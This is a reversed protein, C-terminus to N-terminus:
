CKYKNRLDEWSIKTADSKGDSMVGRGKTKSNEQIREVIKINLQKRKCYFVLIIICIIIITLTFSGIGYYLKREFKLELIEKMNEEQNFAIKEFLLKTNSQNVNETKPIVFKQIFVNQQNSFEKNNIKITCNNFYILYNGKLSIKREDCTSNLLGSELNNIIITNEIETIEEKFKQIYKCNGSVICNKSLTLERTYKNEEYTYTQNNYSIVIEIDSDVQIHDSNTIPILLKKTLKVTGTPIKIAFIISKNTFKAVGLRISSLKQFNIEYATIEEDTLISPHLLGLRASAINTQLHDVEKELIDLKFILELTQSEIIFKLDTAKIEEFKQLIKNRDNDIINKLMVFTKNFNDNIKVQQNMNQIINHNNSDIVSLHEEINQRDEDDMTGFLWKNVSGCFNCLGRKERNPILTKIKNKIRTIRNALLVQYKSSQLSKFTIELSNTINLLEEPYIKHIIIDFKNVIEVTDLKVEAYGLNSEIKEIIMTQHTASPLM